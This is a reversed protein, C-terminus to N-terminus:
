VTSAAMDAVILERLGQVATKLLQDTGPFPGVGHVAM